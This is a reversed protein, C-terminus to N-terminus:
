FKAFRVSSGAKCSNSVLSLVADDLKQCCVVAAGTCAEYDSPTDSSNESDGGEMESALRCRSCNREHNQLMTHARICRAQLRLLEDGVEKRFFRFECFEARHDNWIELARQCEELLRQHETCIATDASFQKSM